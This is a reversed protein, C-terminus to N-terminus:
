RDRLMHAALAQSREEGTLIRRMPEARATIANPISSVSDRRPRWIMGVARQTPPSRRTNIFQCISSGGHIRGTIAHARHEVIHAPLVRPEAGIDEVLLAPHPSVAIQRSRLRPADDGDGGGNAWRVLLPASGPHEKLLPEIRRDFETGCESVALAFSEAGRKPAAIFGYVYVALTATLAGLALVIYIM